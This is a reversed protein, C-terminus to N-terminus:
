ELRIKRIKVEKYICSMSIEYGRSELWKRCRVMLDIAERPTKGDLLEDSFPATKGGRNPRSQLTNGSTKRPYVRQMHRLIDRIPQSPVSRYATRPWMKKCTKTEM